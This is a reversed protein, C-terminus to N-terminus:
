SPTVKREKEKSSGPSCEWLEYTPPPRSLSLSSHLSLLQNGGAEAEEGEVVGEEEEEEVAGEPHLGLAQGKCLPQWLTGLATM